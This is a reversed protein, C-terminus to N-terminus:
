HYSVVIDKPFATILVDRREAAEGFSGPTAGPQGVITSVPPHTRVTAKPGAVLEYDFMIQDIPLPIVGEVEWHIAKAIDSIKLNPMEIVRVFSKEEPLSAVCFRDRVKKGEATRLDERLIRALEDQKRIEGAVVIGEPIDIEGFSDLQLSHDREVLRCFKITLDSIDLGFAPPELVRRTLSGFM